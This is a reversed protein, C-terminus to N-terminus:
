PGPHSPDESQVQIPSLHAVTVLPFERLELITRNAGVSTLMTTRETEDFAGIVAWLPRASTPLGHRVYCDADPLRRLYYEFEWNTSFVQEGPAVRQLVYECAADPANLIWPKTFRHIAKALPMLMILALAVAPVRWRPWLWLWVEYFGAAVTLMIAPAAYITVRSGGYPYAHVLAAVWALAIPTMLLVLRSIEGQKWFWFAGAVALLTLFHGTPRLVHAFLEWTHSLSWGPVTWPRHWDPFIDQWCTMLEHDKQAHIPGLLLLLFTLGVTTAWLAYGARERWTGDRRVSPLVALLLGGCLFCGPYIFLILPPCVITYILLQRRLPWQRVIDFGLLVLSAALIDFVYPKAECCHWLVRDACAMFFVAWPVSAPRLWRRALCTFVVLTLCGAIFSPARLAWVGDGFWLSMTKELWLYGPPAAEHFHLPGLLEAYGKDLVNLILAAEDHWIPMSRFFHYIRLGIGLALALWTWTDPSRLIRAWNAPLEVRSFAM